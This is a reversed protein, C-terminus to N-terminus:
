VDKDEKEEAKKLCVKQEEYTHGLRPKGCVPCKGGDGTISPDPPATM